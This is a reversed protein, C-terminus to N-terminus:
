WILVLLASPVVFSLIQRTGSIMQGSEIETEPQQLTLPPGSSGSLAASERRWWGTALARAAKVEIGAGRSTQRPM